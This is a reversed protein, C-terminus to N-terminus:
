IKTFATIEVSQVMDDFSEMTEQLDDVSAIEDIVTVGIILKFIGFAVPEKKYETKWFVGERKIDFIRKAVEDLSTDSDLPKVEFMILSQEVEKKKEKKGKAKEKAAEAAKKAAALTEEDDDDGFLDDMDDEQAPKAPEIPKATDKISVPKLAKDCMKVIGYFKLVTPHQTMGQFWRTLNPIAKRFGSDFVTGFVFKFVNLLYFDAASLASGGFFEYKKLHMDARKALDKIIKLNANYKAPDYPIVGFLPWVVQHYHTRFTTQFWAIWQEVLANEYM